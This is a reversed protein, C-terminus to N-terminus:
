PAPGTSERIILKAPIPRKKRTSLSTSREMSEIFEPVYDDRIVALDQRFTTLPVPLRSAYSNDDFGVVSLDGPIMLGLSTAVQMVILAALDSYAVVATARSRGSLVAILEEHSDDIEWPLRVSRAAHVGQEKCVKIFAERRSYHSFENEAPGAYAIRRHGAGRLYEVAESMVSIDDVAVLVGGKVGSPDSNIMLAPFKTNGMADVFRRIMDNRVGLFIGGCVRYEQIRTVIGNEDGSFRLNFLKQSYSQKETAALVDALVRAYYEVGLERALLAIMKSRGRRAAAFLENRHYGMEGAIQRVHSITDANMRKLHKENDNIVFSVLTPSVGARKAIEVVTAKKM